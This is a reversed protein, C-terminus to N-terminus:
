LEVRRIGKETICVCDKTKEHLEVFGSRQLSQAVERSEQDTVNIEQLIANVPWFSGPDNREFELLKQLIQKEIDKSAM